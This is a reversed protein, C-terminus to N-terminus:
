YQSLQARQDHFPVIDSIECSPPALNSVFLLCGECCGYGFSLCFFTVGVVEFIASDVFRGFFAFSTDGDGGCMDFVLGVLSVIGVDVARAM